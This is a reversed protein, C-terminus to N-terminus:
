AGGLRAANRWLLRGLWTIGLPIVWGYGAIAVVALLIAVTTLRKQLTNKM